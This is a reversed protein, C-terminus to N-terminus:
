RGCLGTGARHPVKGDHMTVLHAGVLVRGRTLAASTLPHHSHRRVWETRCAVGVACPSHSAALNCAPQAQSYGQHQQYGFFSLAGALSTRLCSRGMPVCHLTARMCSWLLVYPPQQMNAQAPEAALRAAATVTIPGRPMCMCCVRQLLVCMGTHVCPVVHNSGILGHASIICVLGFGHGGTTAVHQGGVAM